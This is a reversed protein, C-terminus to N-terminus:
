ITKGMSKNDHATASSERPVNSAPYMKENFFMLM